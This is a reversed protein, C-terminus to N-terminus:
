PRARVRVVELVGVRGATRLCPMGTESPDCLPALLRGGPTFYAAAVWAAACGVGCLLLSQRWEGGLWWWGGVAVVVAGAVFLILMLGIAVWEGITARPKGM